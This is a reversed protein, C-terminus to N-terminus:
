FDWNTFFIGIWIPSILLAAIFIAVALKRSPELAREHQWYFRKIERIMILGKLLYAALSFTTKEGCGFMIFRM